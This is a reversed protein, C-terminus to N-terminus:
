GLPRDIVLARVAADFETMLKALAVQAERKEKVIQELRTEQDRINSQAHRIFPAQGDPRM